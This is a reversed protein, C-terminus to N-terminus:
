VTAARLDEALDECLRDRLQALAAPDAELHDVYEDLAARVEEALRAPNVVLREADEEVTAEIETSFQAGEKLQAQHVLGNRVEAYFRQALSGSSFSKLKERVLRKIRRGPKADSFWARGLADICSVLLVGAAFAQNRRACEEAPEIYFGILRQRFQDPLKPGELDVEDLKIDPAFYLLGDAKRLTEEKGAVLARHPHPLRVHKDQEDGLCGRLL